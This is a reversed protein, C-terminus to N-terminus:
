KQTLQWQNKTLKFLVHESLNCGKPIMPHEFNQQLNIMNIRLM